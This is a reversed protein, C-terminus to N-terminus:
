IPGLLRDRLHRRSRLRAFQLGDTAVASIERKLTLIQRKTGGSSIGLEYIDSGVVSLLSDEGTWYRLSSAATLLDVELERTWSVSQAAVDISLLQGGGVAYLREATAGFALSLPAAPTEVCALLEGTVIEYLGIHVGRAKPTELYAALLKEDPSLALPPTGWSWGFGDGTKDLAGDRYILREFRITDPAHYGLGSTAM